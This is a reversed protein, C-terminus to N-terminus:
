NSVYVIIVFFTHKEDFGLMECSAFAYICLMYCTYIVSSYLRDVSFTGSIM